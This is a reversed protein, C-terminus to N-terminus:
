HDTLNEHWHALDHHLNVSSCSTPHLLLAAFIQIIDSPKDLNSDHQEVNVVHVTTKTHFRKGQTLRTPKPLGPGYTIFLILKNKGIKSKDAQM